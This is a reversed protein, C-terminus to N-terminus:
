MGKPQIISMRNGETDIFSVILGVGPVDDPEGEKQGPLLKGGAEEIKKMAEHIDEVAIVASPTNFKESKKYFGGNIRGPQKPFKTEEDMETTVAVVYEGMDPGFKQVQWGFANKYFESMRDRDEYPMEFHVVPNM